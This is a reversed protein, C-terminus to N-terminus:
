IGFITSYKKEIYNLFPAATLKSGTVRKMLEAPDYLASLSHVKKAMWDISPPINGKETENHWDPIEKNIKELFMGDYINGLAYSPFYCYYGSAWHTDQLVGKTDNPVVLGLYKEYKENWIQPLESVAISDSFLEQEIEYRIIVHLSYTVEDADIRILSPEVSNMAKIFTIEDIDTFVGGTLKNLRPLYFRLFEPSRGIINEIFRSQSEHIGYSAIKGVPTYKWDPNLNQEYLAHGGEHLITYIASFVDNEHYNVTIRVDDYYGITFPHEVEDIRGGAQESVTDYGM